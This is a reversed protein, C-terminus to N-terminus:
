SLRFVTPMLKSDGEFEFCLKLASCPASLKEGTLSQYNMAPREILQFAYEEDGPSGDPFTPFKWGVPLQRIFYKKWQMLHEKADPREDESFLQIDYGYFYLNKRSM